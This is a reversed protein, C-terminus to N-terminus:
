RAEDLDLPKAPIEHTSDVTGALRLQDCEVQAVQGFRKQVLHRRVQLTAGRALLHRPREVTNGIRQNRRQADAALRRRWERHGDARGPRTAEALIFQEVLDAAATHPDDVARPVHPEALHHGELHKSAPRQEVWAHHMSKVPLHAGDALEIMGVNDLSGIRALDVAHMEEGHFVDGANVQASQELVDARQPGGVNALNGPLRRQCQVM